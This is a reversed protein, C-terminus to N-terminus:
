KSPIIEVLPDEKRWTSPIKFTIKMVAPYEESLACENALLGSDTIKLCSRQLSSHIVLEMNPFKWVKEQFNKEYLERAYVYIDFDTSKQGNSYIKMSTNSIRTNTKGSGPILLWETEGSANNWHITGEKIQNWARRNGWLGGMMWKSDIIATVHKLTDGKYKNPIMRDMLQGPTFVKLQDLIERPITLGLHLIPSINSLEDQKAGKGTPLPALKEDNVAVAIWIGIISYYKKMDMGYARFYPGAMNKLKPNYNSAIEAWLGSELEIGIIRLQESALERWLALGIMSVGYYTPSNYESFTQHRHFFAYIERAKKLGGIRLEDTKFETGTYDMLFASMISINTYDAGVNRKLAGRAARMLGLKIESVVETPLIDKYYHYIIILDCGIFERWNQDLRDKGVNTKWMGYNVSKADKNQNKLIWKLIQVANELDGPNNRFLLAQALRTRSRLSAENTLIQNVSTKAPLDSVIFGEFLSQQYGSLGNYFFHRTVLDGTDYPKAPASRISLLMFLLLCSLINLKKIMIRPIYDINSLPLNLNVPHM